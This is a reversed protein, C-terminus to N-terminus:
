SFPGIGNGMTVSPNDLATGTFDPFASSLVPSGVPGYWSGGPNRSQKLGHVIRGYILWKCSYMQLVIIKSLGGRKKCM